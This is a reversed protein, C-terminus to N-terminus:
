PQEREVPRGILLVVILALPWCVLGFVFFGATSRGYHRAVAAVVAAPIAVIFLLFFMELPGIM